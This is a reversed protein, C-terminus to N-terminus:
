IIFYEFSGILFKFNGVEEVKEDLKLQTSKFAGDTKNFTLMLNNYEDSLKAYQENLCENSQSSSKLENSKQQLQQNLLSNENKMNSYAQEKEAM